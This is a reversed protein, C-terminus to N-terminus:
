QIIKEINAVSDTLDKIESQKLDILQKNYTSKVNSWFVFSEKSSSFFKNFEKKFDAHEKHSKFKVKIIHFILKEEHDENYILKDTADVEVEDRIDDTSGKDDVDDEIHDMHDTDNMSVKDDIVVDNTNPQSTTIPIMMKAKNSIYLTECMFNEKFCKSKYHSENEKPLFTISSFINLLNKNDLM